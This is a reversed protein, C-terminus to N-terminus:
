WSIPLPTSYGPVSQFHVFPEIKYRIGKPTRLIQVDLVNTGESLYADIKASTKSDVTLKHLGIEWPPALGYSIIYTFKFKLVNNGDVQEKEIKPEIREADFIAGQISHELPPIEELGCEFKRFFENRKLNKLAKASLGKDKNDEMKKKVGKRTVVPVSVDLVFPIHLM